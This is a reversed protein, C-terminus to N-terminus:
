VFPGPLTKAERQLRVLWSRGDTSHEASKDGSSREVGLPKELGFM